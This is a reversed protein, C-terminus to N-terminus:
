MKTNVSYYSKKVVSVKTLTGLIRVHINALIVPVHVHLVSNLNSVVIVYISSYVFM